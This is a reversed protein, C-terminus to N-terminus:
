IMQNLMYNATQQSSSQSKKRNKDKHSLRITAIHKQLSPLISLVVKFIHDVTITTRSHMVSTSNSMGHRHVLRRHSSQATHIIGVVDM